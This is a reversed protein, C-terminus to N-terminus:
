VVVGGALQLPNFSAAAILVWALQASLGSQVAAHRAGLLAGMALAAWCVSDGQNELLKIRWRCLTEEPKNEQRRQSKM